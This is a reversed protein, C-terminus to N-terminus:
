HTILRTGTYLKEAVSEDKNAKGDVKEKKEQKKLAQENLPGSDSLAEKRIRM